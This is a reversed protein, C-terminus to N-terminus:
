GVKLEEGQTLLQQASAAALQKKEARKAVQREVLAVVGYAVMVSAVTTAAPIAQDLVKDKWSRKPSVGASSLFAIIQQAAANEIVSGAPPIVNQENSNEVEIKHASAMTITGERPTYDGDITNNRKGAWNQESNLGSLKGGVRSMESQLTMVFNDIRSNKMM